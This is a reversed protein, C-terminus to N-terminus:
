ILYWTIPGVGLKFKGVVKEFVAPTLDLDGYGCGPCADNITVDMSGAKGEVRIKKGCWKSKSSMNGYQEHNLAVILSNEDEKPGCAGYPGGETDPFFFTAQGKYKEVRKEISHHYIPAGQVMNFSIFSLLVTIFFQIFQQRM